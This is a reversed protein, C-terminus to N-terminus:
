NDLFLILPSCKKKRIKNQTTISHTNNPLNSTLPSDQLKAGMMNQSMPYNHRHKTSVSSQQKIQHPKTPVFNTKLQTTNEREIEIKKKM